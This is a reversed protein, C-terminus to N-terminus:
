QAAVTQVECFELLGELGGERGFGSQKMGGFPAEPTPGQGTNWGVHGFQLGAIVREARACDRTFVYAALRYPTGNALEVAQEETDFVGIPVVPGFTEERAISMDPTVGTLVTPPYFAGFDEAASAPDHG